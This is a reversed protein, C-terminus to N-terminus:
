QQRALTRSGSAPRRMPVTPRCPQRSTSRGRLTSRARSRCIAQRRSTGRCSASPKMTSPISAYRARHAAPLAPGVEVLYSPRFASLQRFRGLVAYRRLLLLAAHDGCESAGAIASRYADVGSVNFRHALVSLSNQNAKRFRIGNPHLAFQMLNDVLEVCHLASRDPRSSRGKRM